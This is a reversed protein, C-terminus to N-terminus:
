YRRGRSGRVKTSVKALDKKWMTVLDGMASPLYTRALFAAEPIRGASM